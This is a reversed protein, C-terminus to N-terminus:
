MGVNIANLGEQLSNRKVQAKNLKAVAQNVQETIENCETQGKDFLQKADEYILSMIESLSHHQAFVKKGGDKEKSGIIMKGTKYAGTLSHYLNKSQTYALAAAAESAINAAESAFGSQLAILTLAVANNADTGATIVMSVLEDSILPNLAKKRIILNSLKNIIEASYILKDLLSKLKVSLGKTKLNAKVIGHYTIGSNEQLDYTSQVFQDMLNKNGLSRKCNVDVKNLFGQFNNLKQTLATLTSQYQDVEGQSDPKLIPFDDAAVKKSENNATIFAASPASLFDTFCNREKKYADRYIALLFVVYSIGSKISDGDSDQIAYPGKGGIIMEQINVKQLVDQQKKSKNSAVNVKVPILIKKLPLDDIVTVEDRDSILLNETDSITFATKKSEKVIVFYYNQIPDYLNDSKGQAQLHKFPMKVQDFGISFGNSSEDSITLDLNLLQSTIQYAKKSSSYAAENNLYEGEALKEDALISDCIVSESIEAQCADTYDETVIKLFSNVLDSNAKAKDLVVSSTVESTFISAEMALHSALEADLATDNIMSRAEEAITYITTKDDAAHVIGFISGMDSALRVISTAAIQVNSASVAVATVSQKICDNTHTALGLLNKSINNNVIAQNKAKRKTELDRRTIELQENATLGASQLNNYMKISASKKAAASCLEQERTQLISIVTAHLNDNFSNM